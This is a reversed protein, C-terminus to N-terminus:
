TEDPPPPAAARLLRREREPDAHSPGDDVFGHRRYLAIAAENGNRVSLAVRSVGQARAWGVVAEVLADGVGQGRAPPAVWMSILEVESAVPATASVMGVDAGRRSAVLNLAVGGLRDRWRSEVDGAGSWEALTSGFAEPADALAALRLARWRRWSDPGISSLVVAVTGKPRDM